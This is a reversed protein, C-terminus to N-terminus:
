FSAQLNVGTNFQLVDQGAVSSFEQTCDETAELKLDMAPVVTWGLSLPFSLAEDLRDWNEPSQNIDYYRTYATFDFILRLRSTLRYIFPIEIELASSGSVSANGAGDDIQIWRQSIGPNFDIELPDTRRRKGNKFIKEGGTGLIDNFNLGAEFDHVWAHGTFDAPVTFSTKYALFPASQFDIGQDTFNVQLEGSFTSLNYGPNDPYLATDAGIIETLLLGRAARGSHFLEFQPDFLWAPSPSDSVLGPNTNYTLPAEIAFLWRSSAPGEAGATGEALLSLLQLSLSPGRSEVYLNQQPQLLPNLPKTLLGPLPPLASAKEIGALWHLTVLLAIGSIKLVDLGRKTKAGPHACLNSEM